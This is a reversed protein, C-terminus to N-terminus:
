RYLGKDAVYRLSYPVPEGIHPSSDVLVHFVGHNGKILERSGFPHKLQLILKALTNATEEAMNERQCSLAYHYVRSAGSTIQSASIQIGLSTCGIHVSKSISDQKFTADEDGAMGSILEIAEAVEQIHHPHLLQHSVKRRFHRDLAVVIMTCILCATAVIHWPYLALVGFVEALVVACM